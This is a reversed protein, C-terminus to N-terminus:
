IIVMVECCTLLGFGRPVVTKESHPKCTRGIGVHTIQLYEPKRGCDLTTWTNSLHVTPELNDEPTFSHSRKAAIYTPRAVGAVQGTRVGGLEAWPLLQVTPSSPRNNQLLLLGTNYCIHAHVVFM